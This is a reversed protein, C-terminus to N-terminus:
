WPHRRYATLLAGHAFLRSRLVREPVTLGYKPGDDLRRRLADVHNGAVAREQAHVGGAGLHRACRGQIEHQPAVEIVEDRRVIALSITREVFADAAPLLAKQLKVDDAHVARTAM